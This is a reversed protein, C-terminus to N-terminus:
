LTVEIYAAHWYYCSGDETFEAKRSVYVRGTAGPYDALNATEAIYRANGESLFSERQHHPVLTTDDGAHLGYPRPIIENM